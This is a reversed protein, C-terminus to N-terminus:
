MNKKKIQIFYRLTLLQTTISLNPVPLTFDFLWPNISSDILGLSPLKLSKLYTIKTFHYTPFIFVWLVDWTLALKEFFFSVASNYRNLKYYFFFRINLWEYINWMKSNWNVGELERKLIPHGFVLYFGGWYLFNDLFLIFKKWYLVYRRFLSSNINLQNSASLPRYAANIQFGSKLTILIIQTLDLNRTPKMNIKSTWKQQELRKWSDQSNFTFLFIGPNSNLHSINLLHVLSIWNTKFKLNAIRVLTLYNYVNKILILDWISYKSM